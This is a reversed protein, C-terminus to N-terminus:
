KKVTISIMPPIKPKVIPKVKTACCYNLFKNILNFRLAVLFAITFFIGLTICVIIATKSEDSLLM